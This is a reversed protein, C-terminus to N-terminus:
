KGSGKQGLGGLMEKWYSPRKQPTSEGSLRSDM